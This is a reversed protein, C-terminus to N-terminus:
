WATLASQRDYKHCDRSSQYTLGHCARCGFSDSRPPLYLKRIRRNCPQGASELPCTFWWCVGGFHPRTTQLLIPLDVYQQSGNRRVSYRLRFVPRGDEALEIAYGVSIVSEEASPYEWELTSVSNGPCGIVGDRALEAVDLVLCEEVMVKRM